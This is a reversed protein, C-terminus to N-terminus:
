CFAFAFCKPRASPEVQRDSACHYHPAPELWPQQIYLMQFYSPILSLKSCRIHDNHDKKVSFQGFKVYILIVILFSCIALHWHFVLLRRIVKFLVNRSPFFGSSLKELIDSEVSPGKHLPM